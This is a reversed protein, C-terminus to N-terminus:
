PIVQFLAHLTLLFVPGTFILSDIRDLVGGHGPILDSFDKSGTSRKVASFFLDGLIGSLSIAIGLVVAKGLSIELLNILLVCGLLTTGIIGSIFGAETKNPSLHPVIKNKGLFKGGIFQFVDNLSTLIILILLAAVGAGSKHWIQDGLFAVQSISSLSAVLTFIGFGAAINLPIAERNKNQLLLVTTIFLQFIIAFMYAFATGHSSLLLLYFAITGLTYFIRVTKKTSTCLQSIVLYEKVSYLSLGLFLTWIGWSGLLSSLAITTFIMWWGKIITFVKTLLENRPLKQKAM